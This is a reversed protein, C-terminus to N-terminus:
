EGPNRQRSDTYGCQLCGFHDERAGMSGWPEPAPGSKILKYAMAKCSPCRDGTAPQMRAELERLRKDLADIKEPTTQLRKWAPIRELAKIVDELIGM